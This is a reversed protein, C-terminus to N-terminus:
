DEPQGELRIASQVQARAPDITSLARRLDQEYCRQTIVIVPVRGGRKTDRQLLSEISVGQEGLRTAIHGLVGPEDKAELRLYYPCYWNDNIQLEESLGEQILFSPHLPEPRTLAFVIDSVIAGATPQSGAGQGYFMMDGCAHGHLFVANFAGQVSALPHKDPVFAPHVRVDIRDGERKAVALLKLTLGLDQGAKIDELPVQRIGERHVQEFPIRAHFALSALISLKYAADFGDVDSAPDPEALGLRQADALVEEYSLQEDSMRSLIYNTTGNVIGMLADVRNGQMSENLARIVPIAGCVSAEYYFGAGGEQAADQLLHWNLALAMKNASVVAKGAKLARVMYSASPEEGGLCEVVLSIEPDALIAEADTTLLAAPIGERPKTVDRVLMRKVQIHLGHRHAFEPAMDTLLRYVGAGINGCGLFGIIAKKM